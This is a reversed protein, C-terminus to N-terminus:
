NLTDAKKIWFSILVFNQSRHSLRRSYCLHMSLLCLSNDDDKSIYFGVGCGAKASLDGRGLAGVGSVEDYAKNLKAEMEMDTDIWESRSQNWDTQVTTLQMRGPESTQDYYNHGLTRIHEFDPHESFGSNLMKHVIQRALMLRHQNLSSLEDLGFVVEEAARGALAM